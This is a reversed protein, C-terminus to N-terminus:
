RRWSIKPRAMGRWCAWAFGAATLAALAIKTVDFVPEIRVGEPSAVVVAVARALTQGGGGGGGGSGRRPGGARDTFTGRGSGMGFGAVTLVEAAPILLTDAHRVPEGYVRSVDASAILREMVAAARAESPAESPVKASDQDSM